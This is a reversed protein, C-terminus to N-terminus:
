IGQGEVDRSLEKESQKAGGLFPHVKLGQRLARLAAKKDGLEQMILALGNIAKFHRPDIALVQQLDNLSSRYDQKLYYVTARQNWGEAYSPEIVVVADLLRLALDHEKEEVSKLARGMLLDVTDSGSALWLKEIAEAVLKASEEDKSAILQGYLESLLKGRDVEPVADPKGEASLNTADPKPETVVASLPTTIIGLGVVVCSFLGARGGTRRDLHDYFGM